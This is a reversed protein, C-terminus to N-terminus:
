KFISMVYDAIENNFQKNQCKVLLPVSGAEITAHVLVVQGKYKACSIAENNQIDVAAFNGKSTIIQHFQQPSSLNANMEYSDEDPSNEWFEEFQDTNIQYPTYDNKNNGTQTMPTGMFGSQQNQSPTMQFGMLDGFLNNAGQNSQQPQSVPQSPASPGPGFIDSLLDMTGSSSPPNNVPQSQTPTTDEFGLLNANTQPQSQQQPKSKQGTVNMNSFLGGGSSGKPKQSVTPKNPKPAPREETSGGGIGDFLGHMIKSKEQSNPDYKNEEKKTQRTSSSYGPNYNSQSVSNSSVQNNNTTKSPVGSGVSGTNIFAPKSPATPEKEEKYGEEGWKQAVKVNLKTKMNKVLNNDKSEYLNNFNNDKSPMTLMSVPADYPGVNLQVDESSYKEYIREAFDPDYVKGNSNNQVYDNLFSLEVDIETEDAITTFPNREVATSKSQMRKYELCRQQIEPNSDRSFKEIVDAVFDLPPFGMKSHVKTIASILLCKTMEDDYSKNLLYTAMQLIIEIKSPDNAYLKNSYEGIVWAMLKVFSDPLVAYNEVVNNYNELTYSKFEELDDTESEWENIIKILKSLIDNTIMEGFNVFLENMVKIFWSKSPAFRETLETIKTLIDKKSVSELTTHKLYNMMKEVIFEVNKLTTMKYLLEFTNKKLTEDNAELCDVIVRQHNMVYGPNIQIILALGNIGTCRLNPSDSSLFRSITNSALEILHPNPYITCITKLCQYVIAYGINIGTDDARRMCQSLIEYMNESAAQDDKGLVSLIELLHVQIWPGPFRHYDYERPLKHEIIQKLIVILPSVLDKYKEPNKMSMEKFYPLTAAMVSPDYDCLLRRMREDCDPVSQPSVQYFKYLCMVAKKRIHENKNDLLKIVPETVAQMITENAFKVTATLAMCVEVWNSSQIDKQLSAVLMILFESQDSLLLSCALYGVRKNLLNKDQTLNVCSLHAFPAEHGLMEIYIARILYEKMKKPTIGSEKIKKKLIDLEKVIIKDEEQKSRSDGISKILDLMEKSLHSGQSHM